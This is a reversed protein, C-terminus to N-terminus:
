EQQSRCRGLDSAGLFHAQSRTARARTGDTHMYMEQQVYTCVPEKREMESAPLCGDHSASLSGPPSFPPLCGCLVLPPSALASPIPSLFALSLAQRKLSSHIGSVQTFHPVVRVCHKGVLKGRPTGSDRLGATEARVSHHAQRHTNNYRPHDRARTSARSAEQVMGDQLPDPRASKTPM